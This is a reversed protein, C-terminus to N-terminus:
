RMGESELQAARVAGMSAGGLITVGPTALAERLEPLPLRESQEIAGDLFGIRTYGSSLAARLAGRTAPPFTEIPPSVAHGALSPGGFICTNRISETLPRKPM